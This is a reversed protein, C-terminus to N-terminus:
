ALTQHRVEFREKSRRTFILPGYQLGDFNLTHSGMKVLMLGNTTQIQFLAEPGVSLQVPKGLGNFRGWSELPVWANDWDKPWAPSTFTIPAANTEPPPFPLPAPTALSLPEAVVVTTLTPESRSGPPPATQCGALFIWLLGAASLRCWLMVGRITSVFAASVLSNDCGERAGSEFFARMNGLTETLSPAFLGFEGPM